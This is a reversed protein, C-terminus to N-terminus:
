AGAGTGAAGVDCRTREDGAGRHGARPALFPSVLMAFGLGAIRQNIAGILVLAIVLAETM